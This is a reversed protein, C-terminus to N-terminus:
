PPLPSLVALAEHAPLPGRSGEGNCSRKRLRPRRLSRLAVGSEFRPVGRLSDVDPAVNSLFTHIQTNTDVLSVGTEKTSGM